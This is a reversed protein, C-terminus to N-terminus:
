FEVVFNGQLDMVLSRRSDMPQKTCNKIHLNVFILGIATADSSWKRRLVKRVAPHYYILAVFMSIALVGTTFLGAKLHHRTRSKHFKSSSSDNFNKIPVKILAKIGITSNNKRANLLPMRKKVCTSNVFAAAMAYCDDMVARKCEEVDVNELNVLDAFSRPPFDADDIVEVTFGKVSSDACYNVVVEPRCGKGVDTPDLPIYGPLCSCNVTENDPPATCFGYVGCISNVFCPKDIARWVRIWGSGNSKMYMYQQFNGFYDIIARHHYDKARVSSNKTIGFVVDNTGNVLYMLATDFNFVLSINNLAVDSTLWYGPDAFRFASLVLKGANQMELMYNGTSYDTSGKANSYLKRGEVIIQGPLITDTPSNFSQWVIRPTSDTLVFNGDDKM